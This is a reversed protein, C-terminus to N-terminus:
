AGSIRGGPVFKSFFAAILYYCFFLRFSGACRVRLIGGWRVAMLWVVALATAVAALLYTARMGRMAELLAHPDSKVFVLALAGVGILVQLLGRLNLARRGEAGAIGKVTETSGGIAM